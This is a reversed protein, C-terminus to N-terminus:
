DSGGSSGRGSPGRSATGSLLGADKRLRDLREELMVRQAEKLQEKSPKVYVVRINPPETPRIQNEVSLYTFFAGAVLQAFLGYRFERRRDVEPAGFGVWLGYGGLSVAVGLLTWLSTVIGLLLGSWALYMASLLAILALVGLLFRFLNKRYRPLSLRPNM